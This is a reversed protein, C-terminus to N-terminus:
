RNLAANLGPRPGPSGPDLGLDPEQMSDGKGEAQTESERHTDKMFLYIFDKKLFFVTNKRILM